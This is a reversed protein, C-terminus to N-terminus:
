EHPRSAKAFVVFYANQGIEKDVVKIELDLRKKPDVQGKVSKLGLGTIVCNSSINLM